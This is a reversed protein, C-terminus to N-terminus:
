LPYCRPGGWDHLTTTYNPSQFLNAGRQSRRVHQRARRRYPALKQVRHTENSRVHFPVHLGESISPASITVQGTHSQWLAGLKYTNSAGLELERASKKQRKRTSRSGKGYVGRLKNEGEKSWKMEKPRCELETAGESISQVGQFDPEEVNHYEGEQSPHDGRNLGENRSMARFEAETDVADSKNLKDDILLQASNALSSAELKRKKLAQVSAARAKKLHALQRKSPM